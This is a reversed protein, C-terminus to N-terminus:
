EETSGTLSLLEAIRKRDELEKVKLMDNERQLRLNFQREEFLM